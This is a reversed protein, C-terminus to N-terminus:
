RSELTSPAEGNVLQDQSLLISLPTGLFPGDVCGGNESEKTQVRKRDRGERLGYLLRGRLAKLGYGRGTRSLVLGPRKSRRRVRWDHSEEPFPCLDRRGVRRREYWSASRTISYSFRQFLPFLGTTPVLTM